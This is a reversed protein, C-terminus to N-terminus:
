TRYDAIQVENGNDAYDADSRRLRFDGWNIPRYLPKGRLPAYNTAYAPNFFFPASYREQDSTALVRHVPALYEDNSWVQVVDGINVLLTGPEPIVSYWIDNHLVELGPKQDHVLVTLAGADTHHSIGLHNGPENCFPYYNLRLFSTHAAGFDSFLHDATLGLNLSIGALLTYAVQECADFVARMTIKFMPLSLPWQPAANPFIETNPQGFDFIEKWDRRNKTLEQDYFGWPNERTRLIARKEMQPLAFFQRMAHLSADILSQDIGHGKIQFFGWDRCAGDIKKLAERKKELAGIDIVPVEAILPPAAM